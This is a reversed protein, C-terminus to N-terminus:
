PLRLFAPPCPQKRAKCGTGTFTVYMEEPTFVSLELGHPDLRDALAFPDLGADIEALIASARGNSNRDLAAMLRAQPYPEASGAFVDALMREFAGDGIDTTMEADLLLAMLAGGGYVTLRNASKNNSAEVLSKPGGFALGIMYRGIINEIKKSYDATSYVGEAFMTKSTIYDTFGEKFWEIDGDSPRITHGMWLHLTEHAFTTRWIIGDSDRVPAKFRQAFSNRFAGGDNGQDTTMFIMFDGNASGNFIKTYRKVIRDMDAAAQRAVPALSKEYVFKVKGSDGFTADLTQLTPGIAFGNSMMLEGNAPRFSSPSTSPWPAAAEWNAPLVFSIEPACGILDLDLLFIRAGVFYYADDFRYAIEEKGNRWAYTEHRAELTYRITAPASPTHADLRWTGEGLYAVPETGGPKVHMVNTIFDSSSGDRNANEVDFVEFVGSSQRFRATIEFVGEEVYRVTYQAADDTCSDQAYTQPTAIFLSAAIGACAYKM